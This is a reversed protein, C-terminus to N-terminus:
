SYLKKIKQIAIFVLAAAVISFFVAMPFFYLIEDVALLLISISVLGLIPISKKDTWGSLVWLIAFIFVLLIAGAYGHGSFFAAMTADKGQFLFHTDQMKQVLDAPIKGNPMQWTVIGLTHGVAHLLMIIAAIRLLLKATIKKM